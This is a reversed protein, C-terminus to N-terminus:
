TYPTTSSLNNLGINQHWHLGGEENHVVVVNFVILTRDITPCTPLAHFNITTAHWFKVKPM